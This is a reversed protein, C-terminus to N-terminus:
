DSPQHGGTWGKHGSTVMSEWLADLWLCVSRFSFHSVKENGMVVMMLSVVVISGIMTFHSTHYTHVSRANSFHSADGAADGGSVWEFLSVSSESFGTRTTIRVVKARCYDCIYFVNRSPEQCMHAIMGVSPRCSALLVSQFSLSMQRIILLFKM